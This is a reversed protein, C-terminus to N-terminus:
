QQQVGGGGWITDPQDVPSGPQNRSNHTSCHTSCHTSSGALSHATLQSSIAESVLWVGCVFVCVCVCVCVGWVCLWVCLDKDRVKQSTLQSIAALSSSDFNGKSLAQLISDIQMMEMQTQALNVDPVPALLAMAVPIAPKQTLGGIPAAKEKDHLSRRKHKHSRRKKESPASTTSPPNPVPCELNNALASSIATAVGEQHVIVGEQHVIVGEQHVIVGEQHVTVGEQPLAVGGQALTVGEQPVAVGEQHVIVGEQPVTVSDQPVGCSTPPAEPVGVDAASLCITAQPLTVGVQVAPAPEERPAGLTLDCSTGVPPHTSEEASPPLTSPTVAPHGPSVTPGPDTPGPHGPSVTPGSHEPSVLPDFEKLLDTQSAMKSVSVNIVRGKNSTFVHRGTYREEGTRTKSM